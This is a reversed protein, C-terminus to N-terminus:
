RCPVVDKVVQSVGARSGDKNIQQYNITRNVIKVCPQQNQPQTVTRDSDWARIRKEAHVKPEAQPPPADNWNGASQKRTEPAREAAMRATEGEASPRQNSAEVAGSLTTQSPCAHQTFTVKGSEDVCKFVTDAVLHTSVIYALLLLLRM